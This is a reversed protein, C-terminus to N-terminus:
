QHIFDLVGQKTFRLVVGDELRIPFLPNWVKSIQSMLRPKIQFFAWLIFICLHPVYTSQLAQSWQEIEFTVCIITMLHESYEQPSQLLRDAILRWWRCWVLDPTESTRRRCVICLSLHAPFPYESHWLQSKVRYFATTFWASQYELVLGTNFALLGRLSSSGYDVLHTKTDM